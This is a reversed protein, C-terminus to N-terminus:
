EDIGPLNAIRNQPFAELHRAGYVIAVIELPNAERYVIVYSYVTWFRYASM